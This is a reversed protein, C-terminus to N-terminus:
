LKMSDSSKFLKEQFHINEKLHYIYINTRLCFIDESYINVTLTLYKKKLLIINESVINETVTLYKEKFWIIIESYINLTLSLYKKKFWIINEVWLPVDM